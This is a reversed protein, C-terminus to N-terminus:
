AFSAYSMFLNTCLLVKRVIFKSRRQQETPEWAFNPCM